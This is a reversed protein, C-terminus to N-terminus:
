NDPCHRWRWAFHLSQMPPWVCPDGGVGFESEWLEHPNREQPVDGGGAVRRDTKGAQHLQWGLRQGVAQTATSSPRSLSPRYISVPSTLIQSFGCQRSHQGGNKHMGGLQLNHTRQSVSGQQRDHSLISCGHKEVTRACLISGATCM